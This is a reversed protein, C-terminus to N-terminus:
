PRVEIHGAEGATVRGIVAAIAGGEAGGEAGRRALEAVLADPSSTALLLGGSTQADQLLVAVSEPVEPAFTAWPELYAMNNRTGGSIYGASTLELAGPLLPVTGAEVVAGCGSARLMRHLHGLLSFGTVDTAAVVGCALAAESATANLSTMSAVAAALAADPAVGRKHATAVVGTGIAKTLVLADGPRAADITFLRAPSALGVVAMGYKPEPDDITHGGVVLCGAAAAVSAGGRLVDALVSLPLTEGPWATLNLALLPRGGMAYVDSLANAAAIRGWDRPDDVIPTFFDTTFVLAREDDLRLVAADDAEAAGVLLDGAAAGGFVGPGLSAM